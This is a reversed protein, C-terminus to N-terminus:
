NEIANILYNVSRKRDNELITQPENYNIKGIWEDTDSSYIRKILGYHGLIDYVRSNQSQKDNDDFRLFEVFDKCANISIATAHFSDTCIIKAGLLLHVFELPGAADYVLGDKIKFSPNEASPIIVINEIGYKEKVDDLQRVYEERKGILYCFMYNEPMKIEIQAKKGFKEWEESTLLFTPDLVQIIEKGPLLRKLVNVATAERVGIHDFKSLLRKVEDIHEEKIGTTGISSAYAIRKKNDAFDLFFFSNFSFYTNWIQDSGTVFVDINSIISSFDRETFLIPRNYNEKNFKDLKCEKLTKENKRKLKEVLYYLGIRWLVKKVYGKFSKKPKGGLFIVCYGKNKLFECLAFSQLSTGYNGGGMWTVIGIRKM